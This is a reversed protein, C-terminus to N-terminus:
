YLSNGIELVSDMKISDWHVDFCNVEANFIVAIISNAVCQNGANAGFLLENGQHFTGQVSKSSNVFLPGPNIEIDHFLLKEKCLRQHDRSKFVNKKNRKAKKGRCGCWDNTYRKDQRSDSDLSSSQRGCLFMVARARLFYKLYVSENRFNAKGKILNYLRSTRPVIGIVGKECKLRKRRSRQIVRRVKVSIRSPERCRGNFRSVHRTRGYLLYRCLRSRAKGDKLDKVSLENGSDNSAEGYDSCVVCIGSRGLVRKEEAVFCVRMREANESVISENIGCFNINLIREMRQENEKEASECVRYEELREFSGFYVYVHQCLELVVHLFIRLCVLWWVCRLICCWWFCILMSCITSVVFISIIAM